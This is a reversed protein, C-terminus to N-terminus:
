HSYRWTKISFKQFQCWLALFSFFFLLTLSGQLSQKLHSSILTDPQQSRYALMLYPKVTSVVVSFALLQVLMEYHIVSVRWNEPPLKEYRPIPVFSEFNPQFSTIVPQPKREKKIRSKDKQKENQTPSENKKNQKSMGLALDTQPEM